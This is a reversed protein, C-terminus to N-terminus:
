IGHSLCTGNELYKTSPALRVILMPFMKCLPVHMRAKCKPTIKYKELIEGTSIKTQNQVVQITREFSLRDEEM